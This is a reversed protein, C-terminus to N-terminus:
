YTTPNVSLSLNIFNQQLPSSIELFQNEKGLINSNPFPNQNFIVQILHKELKLDAMEPFGTYNVLLLFVVESKLNILM